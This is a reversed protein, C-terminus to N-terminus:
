RTMVRDPRIDIVRGHVTVTTEAHKAKLQHIAFGHVPNPLDPDEEAEGRHAHNRVLHSICKGELKLCMAFRYRMPLFLGNIVSMELNDWEKQRMETLEEVTKPGKVAHGDESHGL